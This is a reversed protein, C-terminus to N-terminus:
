GGCSLEVKLKQQLDVLRKCTFRPLRLAGEYATRATAPPSPRPGSATGESQPLRSSCLCLRATVRCAERRGAGQRDCDLRGRRGARVPGGKECAAEGTEQTENSASTFAPLRLVWVEVM